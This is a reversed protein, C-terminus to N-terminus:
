GVMITSHLNYYSKVRNEPPGLPSLDSKQSLHEYQFLHKQDSRLLDLVAKQIYKQNINKLTQM